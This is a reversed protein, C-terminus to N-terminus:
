RPLIRVLLGEVARTEDVAHAVGDVREAVRAGLDAAVVCTRESVLFIQTLFESQDLADLAQCRLHHAVVAHGLGDAGVDVQVRAKDVLHEAHGLREKRRQEGDGCPRSTPM